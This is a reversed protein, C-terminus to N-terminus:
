AVTSETLEGGLGESVDKVKVWILEFRGNLVSLATAKHSLLTLSDRAWPTGPLKDEAVM